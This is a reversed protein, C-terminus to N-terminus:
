YSKKALVLVDKYKLDPNEQRVKAVHLLWPNTKARERAAQSRSKGGQLGANVGGYGSMKVASKPQRQGMQVQSRFPVGTSVRPHHLPTGGGSFDEMGGQLGASVGSGLMHSGVAEILPPLMVKALIGAFGGELQRMEAKSIKGNTGGTRGKGILKQVGKIAGEIAIPALSSAIVGALPWIGGQLGASVGGSFDAMGGSFDAMGGSFDEMGGQLGASVGGSFDEMGGYVSKKRSYDIVGALAHSQADPGHMMSKGGTRGRGKKAAGGSLTGGRKIDDLANMLKDISQKPM